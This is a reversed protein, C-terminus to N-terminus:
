VKQVMILTEYMLIISIQVTFLHPMQRSLNEPSYFNECNECVAKNKMPMQWFLPIAM